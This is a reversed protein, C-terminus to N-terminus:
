GDQYSPAKNIMITIVLGRLHEEGGGGGRALQGPQHQAPHVVGHGAEQQAAAAAAALGPGAALLEAGGGAGPGAGAVGYQLLPTPGYRRYQVTSHQVTSYQVQATYLYSTQREPELDALLRGSGYDVVQLQREGRWSAAAIERGKRNTSILILAAMKSLNLISWDSQDLRIPEFHIM